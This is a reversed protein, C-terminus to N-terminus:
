NPKLITIVMITTEPEVPDKDFYIVIKGHNDYVGPGGKFGRITFGFHPWSEKSEPDFRIRLQEVDFARQICEAIEFDINDPNWERDICIEADNMREFGAHFTTDIIQSEVIEEITSFDKLIDSILNIVTRNQEPSVARVAIGKKEVVSSEHKKVEEEILEIQGKNLAVVDEFVTLSYEVGDKSLIKKTAIKLRIM